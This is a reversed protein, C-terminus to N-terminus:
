AHDEIYKTLAADMNIIHQYLWDEVRDQIYARAMALRGNQVRDNLQRLEGLVRNHEGCHEIKGPYAYQEILQEERGFHDETHHLLEAFLTKFTQSNATKLQHTLALFAEHDADIVEHKLVMNAQLLNQTQESTDM